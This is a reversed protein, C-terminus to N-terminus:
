IIGLFSFVLGTILFNTELGGPEEPILCYLWVQVAHWRQMEAQGVFTSCGEKRSYPKM